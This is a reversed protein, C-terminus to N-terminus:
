CLSHFATPQVLFSKKKIWLQSNYLLIELKNTLGYKDLINVISTKVASKNYKENNRM